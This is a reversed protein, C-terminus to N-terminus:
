IHNFGVIIKRQGIVIGVTGNDGGIIVPAAVNSQYINKIRYKFKFNFLDENDDSLTYNGEELSVERFSGNLLVYANDSTIFEALHETEALTKNGTICEYNDNLEEIETSYNNDAIFGNRKIDLKHVQKECLVTEMAGLKNRFLFQRAFLPKPILYFAIAKGIIGSTNELYIEYKYVEKQPNVTSLSLQTYGAPLIYVNAKVANNLAAKTVISNTGDSFYLKAKLSITTSPAPAVFYLYQQADFWTEIKNISPDLLYNKDAAVYTLFDFANSFISNDIKGNIAFLTDSTFVSKVSGNYMEAFKLYYKKALSITESIYNQNYSPLVPNFYKSLLKGPMINSNGSADVTLLSTAVLDFVNNVRERELYIECLTKYSPQLIKDTGATNYLVSVNPNNSGFSLSYYAGANKPMFVIKNSQCVITYYKQFLYNKLFMAAISAVSNGAILVTGSFDDSNVVTFKITKNAFSFCFENGIAVAANFVVALEAFSGNSAYANSSKVMFLLDNGCFDIEKPQKTVTIM